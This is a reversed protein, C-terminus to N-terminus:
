VPAQYPIIVNKKSADKVHATAYASPITLSSVIRYEDCYWNRRTM